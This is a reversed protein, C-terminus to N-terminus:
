YKLLMSVPLYSLKRVGPEPLSLGQKWSPFHYFLVDSTRQDGPDYVYIGLWVFTCM